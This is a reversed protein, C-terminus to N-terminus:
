LLDKSSNVEKINANIFKMRTGMENLVEFLQPQTEKRKAFALKYRDIDKDSLMFLQAWQISLGYQFHQVDGGQEIIGVKSGSDKEVAFGFTHSEPVALKLIDRNFFIDGHSVYVNGTTCARLGMILSVASSTSEYSQNEIVRVGKPIYKYIKELEHGLVVIIDTSFGFAERIERIQYEILTIDDVRFLPKIRYQKCEGAALIVFSLNKPDLKKKATTQFRSM